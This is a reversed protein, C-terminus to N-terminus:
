ETGEIEFLKKDIERDLTKLIQQYLGRTNGQDAALKLIYGGAIIKRRTDDKRAKGTAREKARALRAEADAIQQEPSRWKMGQKGAM